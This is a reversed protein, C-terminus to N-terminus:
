LAMIPNNKHVQGSPTLIRCHQCNVCYSNSSPKVEAIFDHASCTKERSEVISDSILLLDVILLRDHKSRKRLAIGQFKKSCIRGHANVNMHVKQIKVAIESRLVCKTQVLYM